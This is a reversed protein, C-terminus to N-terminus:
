KKRKPCNAAVREPETWYGSVRSLDEAEECFKAVHSLGSFKYCRCIRVFKQMKCSNLEIFVTDITQLELHLNNEMELVYHM